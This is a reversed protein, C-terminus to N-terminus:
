ALVAAGIAGALQPDVTSKLATVKLERELRETIGPNKALGGTFGLEKHVTIDGTDLPQLKGIVGLIRWAVAFLHSAYVENESLPAAKFDQRFLGMTETDAFAFCTTSVPEPDKTVDLSKPGIEEIPIKLYDCLVEINRGFGTACKDNMMFDRVRDWEYLWIAKCTQAGLDVVTQVEPGYMFRAGKAHCHVEDLSKGACSVNRRGWGTAAAAGIDKLSMGSSGMAREVATDAAKRFNVGVRISAYGFLQGDCLIAAQASTTGVDVGARIDGAKKWDITESVWSSEPWKWYERAM